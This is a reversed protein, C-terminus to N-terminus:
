KTQAAPQKAPVWVWNGKKKDNGDKCKSLCKNREIMFRLGIENECCM